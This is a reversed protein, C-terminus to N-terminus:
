LSNKDFYRNICYNYLYNDVINDKKYNYVENEGNENRFDNQNTNYILYENPYQTPIINNTLSYRNKTKKFDSYKRLHGRNSKTNYNNNFTFNNIENFNGFSPYNIEKRKRQTYNRKKSRRPINNNNYNYNLDNLYVKNYKPILNNKDFSKQIFAGNYNNNYNNNLNVINNYGNYNYSNNNMGNNIYYNSTNESNGNFNYIESKYSKMYKSADEEDNFTTLNNNTKSKNKM